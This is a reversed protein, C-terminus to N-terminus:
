RSRFSQALPVAWSGAQKGFWAALTGDGVALPLKRLIALHPRKQRCTAAHAVVKFCAQSFKHLREIQNGVLCILTLSEVSAWFGIWNINIHDGDRFLIRGCLSWDRIYKSSFVPNIDHLNVWACNQFGIIADLFAKM